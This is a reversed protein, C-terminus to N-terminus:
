SCLKVSFLIFDGTARCRVLIEKVDIIYMVFFLLFFIDLQVRYM